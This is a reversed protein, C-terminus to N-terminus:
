KVLFLAIKEVVLQFWHFLSNPLMRYGLQRSYFLLLHAFKQKGKIQRRNLANRYARRYNEDGIRQKELEHSQSNELYRYKYLVRDIFIVSSVEELKFVLDRDEAYLMSQDLGKTKGYITRRFTKLHSIFGRFLSTEKSPIKHSYGTSIKLTLDENYVDYKSYVLGAEPSNNYTKLVFETAEAELADDPDLIGVIDTKANEILTILTAIYGLNQEHQLLTIKDSLFPAIIELSNDTSKDDAILCLWQNNTQALLSNLCDQIYKGNNYNAVLYTIQHSM